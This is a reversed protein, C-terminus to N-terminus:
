HGKDLVNKSRVGSTEHFLFLLSSQIYSKASACYPFVGCNKGFSLYPRWAYAWFLALLVFYGNKFSDKRWVTQRGFLNLRILQSIGDFKQPRRLFGSSYMVYHVNHLVKSVYNCTSSFHVIWLGYRDIIVILFGKENRKLIYRNM